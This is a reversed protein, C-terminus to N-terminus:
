KVCQRWCISKAQLEIGQSSQQVTQCVQQYRWMESILDASMRSSADAGPRTAMRLIQISTLMCPLLKAESKRIARM